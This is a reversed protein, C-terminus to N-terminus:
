RKRQARMRCAGSCYRATSRQPVFLKGCEACTVGVDAEADSAPESPTVPPQSPTVAPQSPTVADPKANRAAHAAVAERMAQRSDEPLEKAMAAGFGSQAVALGIEIIPAWLEPSCRTIVMKGTEIRELM